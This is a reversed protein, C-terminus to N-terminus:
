GHWLHCAGEQGHCIERLRDWSGCECRDPRAHTYFRWRWHGCYQTADFASHLLRGHGSRAGKRQASPLQTVAGVTQACAEPAPVAPVEALEEDDEEEDDFAFLQAALDRPGGEPPPAHPMLPATRPRLAVIGLACGLILVVNKM